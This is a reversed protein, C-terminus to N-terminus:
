YTETHITILINRHTGVVTLLKTLVCPFRAARRLEDVRLLPRSLYLPAGIGIERLGAAWGVLWVERTIYRRNVRNVAM